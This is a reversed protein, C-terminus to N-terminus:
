YIQRRVNRETRIHRDDKFISKMLFNRDSEDGLKIGIKYLSNYYITNEDFKLDKYLSLIIIDKKLIVDSLYSYINPYEAKKSINLYQSSCGSDKLIKIYLARNDVGYTPIIINYQDDESKIFSIDIHLYSSDSFIRYAKKYSCEGIIISIKKNKPLINKKIYLRIFFKENGYEKTLTFNNLYSIKRNISDYSVVKYIVNSLSLNYSPFLLRQSLLGGISEYPNPPYSFDLSINKRFVFNLYDIYSVGADISISFLREIIKDLGAPYVVVSRPPYVPFLGLRRGFFVINKYKSLKNLDSLKYLPCIDEIVINLRGLPNLTFIKNV